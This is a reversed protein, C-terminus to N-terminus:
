TVTITVSTTPQGFKTAGDAMRMQFTYTGPTAPATFNATFTGNTNQAVSGAAISTVGFNNSGIPVLSYSAASWTATGLNQMTITASFNTSHVVSAPVGTQSVFAADDPGLTVTVNVLPTKEGFKVGSKSMQWQIPYTGPTIPSTCLGTITVNANPAVSSPLSITPRSWNTATM